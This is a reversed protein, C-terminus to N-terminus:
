REAIRFLKERSSAGRLLEIRSPAIDLASALLRTVAANAAGDQPKARVKALVKNDAVELSEVRAGPTVKVALRGEGDAMSRIAAAEPTVIRPRAM